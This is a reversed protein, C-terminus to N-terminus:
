LSWSGKREAEEECKASRPKKANKGNVGRYMKHRSKVTSQDSVWSSTTQKRFEFIKSLDSSDLTIELSFFFVDEFATGRRDHTEARAVRRTDMKKLAKPTGQCNREEYVDSRNEKKKREGQKRICQPWPFYVVSFPRRILALNEEQWNKHWIEFSIFLLVRWSITKM